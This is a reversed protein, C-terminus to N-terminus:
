ETEIGTLIETGISFTPPDGGVVIRDGGPDTRQTVVGLRPSIPMFLQAEVVTHVAQLPSHEAHFQTMEFAPVGCPALHGRAVLREQAICRECKWVFSFTATMDPMEIDHAMCLVIPQLLGEDCRTNSSAYMIGDRQM